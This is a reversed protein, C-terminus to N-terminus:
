VARGTLRKTWVNGCECRFTIITFGYLMDRMIELGESGHGKFKGDAPPTFYRGVETGRCRHRTRAWTVLLFGVVVPVIGLLGGILLNVSTTM